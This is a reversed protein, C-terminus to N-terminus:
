WIDLLRYKQCSRKSIIQRYIVFYKHLINQIVKFAISRYIYDVTHTNSENMYNLYVNFILEEGNNHEQAM